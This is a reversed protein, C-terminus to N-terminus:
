IHKPIYDLWNWKTWCQSLLLDVLFHSITYSGKRASRRNDWHAINLLLLSSFLDFFFFNSLSYGREEAYNRWHLCWKLGIFDWLIFCTVCVRRWKTISKGLITNQITEHWYKIKMFVFIVVFFHNPFNSKWVLIKIWWTPKIVWLVFSGELIM